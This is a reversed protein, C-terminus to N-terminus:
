RTRTLTTTYVQPGHQTMATLKALYTGPAFATANWVVSHTGARVSGKVLTSIHRGLIDYIELRVDTQQPIAYSLTAESTFPNPYAPDLAIPSLSPLDTDIATPLGPVGSLDLKYMSRGHTGALLFRQQDDEYIKLDYVSVAPLNGGLLEWTLGGDESVFAGVDSGLYLYDTNHPDVAFANVPADPLNSSIDEWTQGMDRTRFVHPQPDRWKLGSYTVYLTNEDHPDVVVRTVWRLPLNGTIDQWTAGYDDSVWVNGDDTGAYIVDSNTPAVAITSVTGLTAYDIDKTLDESISVWQDAGNVTRYIRNTGYYLVEPNNPDMVVPTSWNKPDSSRIGNLVTRIRGNDLKVLRGNQSEAYIINPDDPHVIVYFGDGGNIKYWENLAQETGVTGNDQTGGFVRDPNSPDIAIEYFQTIPLDTMPEWSLGRNQSIGLGGDNGNISFTADLPNFAQAHHDSHLNGVTRWNKGGDQSYMFSIDMVFVLDPDEPHVRVQGMYWSFGQSGGPFKRELDRAPDADYWTEGGDDTRLFDLFTFGNTYLAYMVDPDSHSITLGIRGADEDPLGNALGLRTWTDGGDISKYIGSEPGSLQAGTPRRVRQWTAAFLVQSSDPRMVLDIVGTSDSLWESTGPGLVKEWIDGGDTSRYVGREPNPAFYSGVAAVFVRDPDEPDILVRGISTTKPLGVFDWHAGGDISKYVGSGAFNNHGGNAEGTGVFVVNPNVPDVAIDGISLVPQDDFIPTWNEGSDTSKFVGGTAAAAYITSPSLPDFEIDVVRGGVNTPGVLDWDGFTSSKAVARLAETQMFALRYADLDANFHPFTRQMWGWEAPRRVPEQEALQAQSFPSSTSWLYWGTSLACGLLVVIVVRRM